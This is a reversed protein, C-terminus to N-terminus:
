TKTTSHTTAKKAKRSHLIDDTAQKLHQQDKPAQLTILLLEDKSHKNIGPTTLNCDKMLEKLEDKTLVQIMVRTCANGDKDQNEMEAPYMVRDLVVLATRRCNGISDWLILVTMCTLTTATFQYHGWSENKDDDSIDPSHPDANKIRNLFGIIDDSPGGSQFSLNFKGADATTPAVEEDNPADAGHSHTMKWKKKKEHPHRGASCKKSEPSIWVKDDDDSENNLEEDNDSDASAKVLLTNGLVHDAKWHAACLALLLQQTEMKVLAADWEKPYYTKITAYESTTILISNPM